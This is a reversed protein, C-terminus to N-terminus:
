QHRASSEDGRELKASHRSQKQARFLFIVAVMVILFIDFANAAILNSNEVHQGARFSQYIELDMIFNVFVAIIIFAWFLNQRNFWRAM